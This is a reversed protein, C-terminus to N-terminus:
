DTETPRFTKTIYPGKHCAECTVGDSKEYTVAFFTSDLGGGTTHCKICVSSEQPYVKLKANNTYHKAEKTSLIKYAQSHPGNKMIDYQFGLEKKNHCALACKEIGVYLYKPSEQILSSKTILLLLDSKESIIPTQFSKVSDVIIFLTIFSSLVLVATKRNTTM